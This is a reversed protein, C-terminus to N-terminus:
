SKQERKGQSDAQCLTKGIIRHPKKLEKAPHTQLFQQQELVKKITRLYDREQENLLPLKADNLVQQLQILGKHLLYLLAKKRKRGEKYTKRRRKEYDRQRRKQEVYKSRPRKKRVVKCWRFLQKEFVWHCCEWLLKVDTPFRIYSEYCTADMLLVHTNNMDRKWHEILIQQLQQWDTHEALYSRIRSVIANDRIKETDSLMKGCFLQLSWDSNFREILKEDSISLYSKLFM